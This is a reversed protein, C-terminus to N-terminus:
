HNQVNEGASHKAERVVAMHNFFTRRSIGFAICVKSASNNSNEYLIRAQELKAPDIKPRGGTKGRAKAAERGAAAREAKLEREMQNIAGIISLFARGTASSTDINEQLSVLNIGKTEFEQVLQLLHMLSRTMRSLETVVLLDGPRLFDMLKTWEPRNEAVGSAKDTFVRICGAKTLADLQSDLNQGITSVRAYGIRNSTTAKM